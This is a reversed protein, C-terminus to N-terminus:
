LIAKGLHTARKSFSLIRGYELSDDHSLEVSLQSELQFGAAEVERTAAQLTVNAFEM